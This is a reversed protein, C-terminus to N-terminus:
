LRNKHQDVTATAIEAVSAVSVPLGSETLAEVLAAALAEVDVPPAVVPPRAKLEAVDAQLDRIAAALQNTAVATARSSLPTPIVKYTAAMTAIGNGHADGNYANDESMQRQEEEYALVKAPIDDGSYNRLHWPEEPVLEWSWGFGVAYRELWALRAGTANAVDVAIAWGHNSTGPVAASAVGDKKYWRERTGNGDSDWLRYGNTTPEVQYRAAFTTVQVQYTRYSDAYSSTKLTIGAATAAATMAVWCRTATEVLRVTPGGSLGPTSRLIDSDLKGNEQGELVAPKQVPLVVLAM